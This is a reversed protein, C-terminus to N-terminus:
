LRLVKTAKALFLRADVAGAVLDDHQSNSPKKVFSVLPQRRHKEDADEAAATAELSVVPLLLLSLKGCGDDVM